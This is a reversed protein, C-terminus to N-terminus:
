LKTNRCINRKLLGMLGKVFGKRCGEASLLLQCNAFKAGIKCRMLWVHCDFLQVCCFYLFFPMMVVSSLKRNTLKIVVSFKRVCLLQRGMISTPMLGRSKDGIM